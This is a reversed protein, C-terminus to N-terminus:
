KTEGEHAKVQELNNVLVGGPGKFFYRTVIDTVRSRSFDELTTTMISPKNSDYEASFKSPAVIAYFQSLTSM